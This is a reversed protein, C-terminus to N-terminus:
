PSQLVKTLEVRRCRKRWREVPEGPMRPLLHSQGASEGRLLQRPVGRRVLENIVFEVRKRGLWVNYAASGIDDTHGVLLVERIRDRYRLINEALLDLAQQWTLATEEGLSDLVFPYPNDYRNFPFNLRLFLRAPVELPPVTTDGTGTTLRRVEFFVEGAQAILEVETAAPVRLRYTGATDTTTRDLTVTDGPRRAHVDAGVIPRQTERERVQGRLEIRRVESPTIPTALPEYRRAVFLDFSGARNSSWYLLSDPNGPAMPALEDAATNIPIALNEAAGFWPTLLPTDSPLTPMGRRVWDWFAPSIECAFVDYGGVSSHGNSAFLLWRGDRSVAPTLENCASNVQPGCNYPGAWSGDPRRVAFYIDTGGYGEPADAAFFLVSGDPSLAPQSEWVAGSRHWLFASDVHLRSGHLSGTVIRVDAPHDELRRGAVFLCSPTGTPMGLQVLPSQWPQGLLASDERVLTASAVWQQTGHALTVWAAGSPLLHLALEDREPHALGTVPAIRWFPRDSRAVTDKPSGQWRLATCRPPEPQPCNATAPPLTTRCGMTLLPLCSGLVAAIQLASRWQSRATGAPLRVPAAMHPM